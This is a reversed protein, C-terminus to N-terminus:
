VGNHLVVCHDADLGQRVHAERTAHSVAILRSHQNLDNIAQHSLRVIDRLHGISRIGANAVVPGSIRAISLNNAHVLDPCLRALLKALEARTPELLLHEKSDRITALPAHSIERERLADALPGAAPAAIQIDFGAAAVTPLTALMSREGGLLTPHEC